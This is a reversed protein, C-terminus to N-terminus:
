IGGGGHSRRGGAGHLADAFVTHPKRWTRDRRMSIGALVVDVNARAVDFYTHFEVDVGSRSVARGERSASCTM